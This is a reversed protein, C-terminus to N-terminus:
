PVDEKRTTALACAELPYLTPNGTAMQEFVQGLAELEDRPLAAGEGIIVPEPDRNFPLTVFELRLVYYGSFPRPAGQLDEPIRGAAKQTERDICSTQISRAGFRVQSLSLRGFGAAVCWGGPVHEIDCWRWRYTLPTWLPLSVFAFVSAEPWGLLALAIVSAIAFCVALAVQVRGSFSMGRPRVRLRTPNVMYRQLLPPWFTMQPAETM